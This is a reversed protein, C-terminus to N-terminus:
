SGNPRSNSDRRARWARAKITEEEIDHHSVGDRGYAFLFRLSTSVGEMLLGTPTLDMKSQSRSVNNKREGLLWQRWAEM